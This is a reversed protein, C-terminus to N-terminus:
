MLRIKSNAAVGGVEDQLKERVELDAIRSQLLALHPPAYGSTKQTVHKLANKQVDLPTADLFTRFHNEDDM